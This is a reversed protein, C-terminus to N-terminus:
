FTITRIARIKKNTETRPSVSGGPESGDHTKVNISNFETSSWTTSLSLDDGLNSTLISNISSRADFLSVLENVAPLYWDNHGGAVLNLCLEAASDTTQSDNIIDLSNQLGDVNSDAGDILFNSPSTWTSFSHLEGIYVFKVTKGDPSVYFVVGEDEYDGIQYSPPPTPAPLGTLSKWNSGDYGEFDVKAANWRITGAAPNSSSANGSLNIAGVIELKETASTTGLGTNGSVYLGNVPAAGPNGGITTGSNSLVRLKTAGNIRVRLGDEGSESAVDLKAEPITNGIGVKEDDRIINGNIVAWPSIESIEITNSSGSLEIQGKNISLDQIENTNDSDADEFLHWKTGDFYKFDDTDYILMGKIPAAVSSSIIRPVVIGDTRLEIESQAYSWQSFGFVILLSIILSASRM